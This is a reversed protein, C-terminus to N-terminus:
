VSIGDLRLSAYHYAMKFDEKERYCLELFRYVELRQLKPLEQEQEAQSLYRIGDDFKSRQVSLRGRLLLYEGKQVPDAISWLIREAEELRDSALYHRALLLQEREAYGFIRKQELLESVWEDAPKGKALRCHCLLLLAEAREAHGIYSGDITRALEACRETEALDGNKWADQACQLASRCLLLRQEESAPHEAPELLELCTRYNGEKYSRRARELQEAEHASSDDLLWAMSVDLVKALHALTKVSPSAQDHELQSLMNRTIQEGATQAQSLGKALRAQRLKEGLTM